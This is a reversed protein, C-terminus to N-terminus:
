SECRTYVHYPFPHARLCFDRKLAATAEGSELESNPAVTSWHAGTGLIVVDAEAIDDALHSGERNATGPAMTLHYTGPELEEFLHYLATQSYFTRALDRPGVIVRDGPSSNAEVAAILGRVQDAQALNFFPFSRTGRDVWNERRDFSATLEDQPGSIARVYNTEMGNLWTQALVFVVIAPAAVAAVRRLDADLRRLVLPSALVTPLLATCVCAVNLIHLTEARGLAQPLLALGLLALSALRRAEIDRPARVWAIAAAALTAAVSGCLLLLLKGHPTRLSPLPLSSQPGSRFLADVILNEFVQVPGALVVHVLLPIAGILAGLLFRRTMALPRWVLLPVAALGAALGFQPRYAIALGAAVGSLAVLRDSGTAASRQLLWLGWVLLAVGGFWALAAPGSILVAALLGAGLATVLGTSAALAFVGAVVALRYILGVAREAIVDPGTIAYLGALVHTNAPGYFSEYDEYPLVGELLLQPELLLLGEDLSDGPDHWTPVIGLSAIALVCALAGAWPLANHDGLLRRAGTM